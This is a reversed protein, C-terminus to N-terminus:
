KVYQRVQAYRKAVENGRRYVIISDWRIGHERAHRAAMDLLSRPNSSKSWLTTTISTVSYKSIPELLCYSVDYFVEKCYYKTM